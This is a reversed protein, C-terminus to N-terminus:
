SNKLIKEAVGPVLRNLWLLLKVKGIPIELRNNGYCTWFQDTLQEATIKNRGRGATMATDVVPPIVEFVRINTSELQYRLAKTFLRLGAKTACYVPASKKPVIALGSTVNVIAAEDRRSLLPLLGSVLRVPSTLNVVIEGPIRPDPAPAKGSAAQADAFSYNFQIGANNILVSLEPHEAYLREVLRNTQEENGLDCVCTAAIGPYRAKAQALKTEDRGVLIVQNRHRVFRETLALGIGAAGGTILVTHGSLRM